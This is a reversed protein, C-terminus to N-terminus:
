LAIEHEACDLRDNPTDRLLAAVDIENKEVHLAHLAGVCGGHSHEAVEAELSACVALRQKEDAGLALRSEQPRDFLRQRLATFGRAAEVEGIQIRREFPALLPQEAAM